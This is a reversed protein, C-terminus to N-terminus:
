RRNGRAAREGSLFADRLGSSLVRYPGSKPHANFDGCLIVPEGSEVIDRIWDDGMLTHAQIM